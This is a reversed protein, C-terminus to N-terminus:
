LDFILCTTTGFAYLAGDEGVVRGEATGIRRGVQVIEGKARVLGIDASIAKVFNTKVEITTYARGAPLTSHVACSMCSDLLTMAYGGHVVGMPNFLRHSPQSVWVIRGEEVAELHMSLAACVPPLPLEGARCKQFFELGSIAILERKSLVGVDADTPPCFDSAM